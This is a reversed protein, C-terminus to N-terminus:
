ITNLRRALGEYIREGLREAQLPYLFPEILELEMLLLAGDDGRVMDIRAYLPTENLIGIVGAAREIDAPDATHRRESGGYSSQVRYDDPAASKILAHSFDGDIFIFSAEGESQIAPLFPQAMMPESLAPLPTGRRLRFQGEANAGVQRKLILDDSGLQEFAAGIADNSPRDLWLTPVSAAGESELERLYTKRSNWRVLMTSNCLMTQAEIAELRELFASLNDQYDWTSGILAADFAAWDVGPEDWAVAEIESDHAEFTATLCAMMQDHEFADDRRQISGPLTVRSALYAIRM